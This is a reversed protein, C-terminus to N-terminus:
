VDFTDAAGLRTVQTTCRANCVNRVGDGACFAEVGGDVQPM